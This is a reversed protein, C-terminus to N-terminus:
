LEKKYNAKYFEFYEGTKLKEWTMVTDLWVDEYIHSGDIFVLDFFETPLVPVMDESRGHHVTINNYGETNHLFDPLMSGSESDELQRNGDWADRFTDVTHVQLAVEALCVTSRGYLAGIELCVKGQALRSLEEAEEERFFGSIQNWKLRTM